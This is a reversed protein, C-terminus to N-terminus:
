QLEARLQRFQELGLEEARVRQDLGLADIAAASAAAGFGAMTLNKRLTKRRHRFADHVLSTLGPDPKVGAKVTLHVISSMVEPAPLFCAPSVNRVIRADAHYSVLVSWAGYGQDGPSAVMREAVERQVMAVIRGIRGSQLAQMVLPTAVNYPLNAILSSGEPLLSYDFKLADQNLVTVNDYGALTEELAPILRGDLEVAIVTGAKRALQETLVGLGPGFEVVTADPRIAAAETIANLANADILFNQGFDRDPRLNHRRLLEQVRAPSTLPLNM